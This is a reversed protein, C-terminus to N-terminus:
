DAEKTEALLKDLLEICRAYTEAAEDARAGLFGANNRCDVQEQRSTELEARLERVRSAPIYREAWATRAPGDSGEGQALGLACDTEMENDAFCAGYVGLKGREIVFIVDVAQPPKKKTNM